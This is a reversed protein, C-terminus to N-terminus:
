NIHFVKSCLVALGIVLSFFLVALAVILIILIRDCLFQHIAACSINTEPCRFNTNDVNENQNDVCRLNTNDVNENQNDVCRLNTNDVNENQNDVRKPLLASKKSTDETEGREDM